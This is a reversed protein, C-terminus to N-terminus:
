TLPLKTIIGGAVFKDPLVCNNNELEMALM